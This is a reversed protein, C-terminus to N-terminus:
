KYEIGRVLREDVWNKLWLYDEEKMYGLKTISEGDFMFCMHTDAGIGRGIYSNPMYNLLDCHKGKKSILRIYAERVEISTYEPTAKTVKFLEITMWVNVLTLALNALIMNTDDFKMKAFVYLGLALMQTFTILMLIHKLTVLDRGVWFDDRYWSTKIEKEIKNEEM